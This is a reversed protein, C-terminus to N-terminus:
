LFGNNVPVFNDVQRLIDKKQRDENNLLRQMFPIASMKHRETWADKVLFKQSYRKPMVHLNQKKPFMSKLKEVKLSKKAFKLCLYKKREELSQLKLVDLAHAYNVYETGLIVKLASKQVRELKDSCKKTLGSHWLVASQELKSRVQLIYVRKLDRKNKTFKAVKHLFSMRKNSEKVIKDTNKNWSLNNTILTGLLKTETVTEIVKGDLKIDTSFQNNRSFNFIINKTKDVNLRMKKDTTWKQIDDLHKQTKLNNAPIVLNSSFM